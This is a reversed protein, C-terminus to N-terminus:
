IMKEQIEVTARNRAGDLVRRVIPGYLADPASYLARRDPWQHWGADINMFFQWSVDFARSLRRAQDERLPPLSPVSLLLAIEFAARPVDAPNDAYFAAVHDTTWGRGLMEDGVIEALSFVQAPGKDMVSEESM